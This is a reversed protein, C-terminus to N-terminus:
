PVIGESRTWVALAALSRDAYAQGRLKRDRPRPDLRPLIGHNANMPAFRSPDTETIHRCLSGLVTEPPPVAAPRDSAHRVANIGALIGVAGSELYGEVGALQGAVFVGPERKVQLASTLVSPSELFTNRHMVGYRVIEARALGPIMRLIRKQDAWKLRTQFGVLGWLTGERNEQRLQVVAFPRRGTRPDELGIPRMPGYALTRPGRRALEEVPICAEFFPTSSEEPLHPAAQEAETLAAHFAEYEERTFPCNLYDATKDAPESGGRLSRGRRSARYAIGLDVSEFTVTPAVADYFRLLEAGAISQLSAAMSDSTLPGTAIVVPREEPVAEAEARVVTIEPHGHVRETVAAAFLAADVALAEGAPVSCADAVPLLVSGLRRMEEKLLGSANTPLASKLSNSCVLEALDGTRHAPTLKRPRMEYLLVQAGRSAAAWAAEVGALGGGIVM